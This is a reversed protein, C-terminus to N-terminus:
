CASGPQECSSCRESRCSPPSGQAAWVPKWSCLTLVPEARTHLQSRPTLPISESPFGACSGREDGAGEQQLLVLGPFHFSCVESPCWPLHQLKHQPPEHLGAKQLAKARGQGQETEALDFSSTTGLCNQTKKKKSCIGTPLISGRPCCPTTREQM